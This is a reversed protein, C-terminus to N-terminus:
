AGNAYVGFRHEVLQWHKAFLGVGILVQSGSVFVFEVDYYDHTCVNSDKGLVRSHEVRVHEFGGHSGGRFGARVSGSVADVVM